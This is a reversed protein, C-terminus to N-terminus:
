IIIQGFKGKLIFNFRYAHFGGYKGPKVFFASTKIMLSTLWALEAVEKMLVGVSMVRPHVQAVENLIRTMSSPFYLSRIRILIQNPDSIEFKKHRTQYLATTKIFVCMPNGGTWRKGYKSRNRLM